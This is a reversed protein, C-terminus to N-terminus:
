AIGDPARRRAAARIARCRRCLLYLRDESRLVVIRQGAERWEGVRAFLAAVADAAQASRSRQAAASAADADADQGTRGPSGTARSLSDWSQSPFIDVNGARAIGAVGCAALLAAAMGMRARSMAASGAHEAEDEGRDAPEGSAPPGAGADGHLSRALLELAATLDQVLGGGVCGDLHACAGRVADEGRYRIDILLGAGGPQEMVAFKRQDLAMRLQARVQEMAAAPASAPTHCAQLQAILAIRQRRLEGQEPWLVFAGHVALVIATALALLGGRGLAARWRQWHWRCRALLPVNGLAERRKALAAPLNM